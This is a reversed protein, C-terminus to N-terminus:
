KGDACDNAIAFAAAFEPPPPPLTPPPTESSLVDCLWFGIGLSVMIIGYVACVCSLLLLLLRNTLLNLRFFSFLLVQIWVCVATM